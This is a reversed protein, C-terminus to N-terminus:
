KTYSTAKNKCQKLLSVFDTCDRDLASRPIFLHYGLARKLITTQHLFAAKPGTIRKGKIKFPSFNIILEETTALQQQICFYVLPRQEHILRSALRPTIREIINEIDHLRIGVYPLTIREIGVTESIVSINAISTWPLQWTGYKHHYKIYQPVLTFSKPPEIKKVIGIFIMILCIVVLLTLVLKTQQWFQAAILLLFVLSFAGILILTYANHKAQAKIEIKPEQATM